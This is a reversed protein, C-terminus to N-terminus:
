IKICQAIMRELVLKQAKGAPLSSSGTKLRHDTDVMLEFIKKLGEDTFNRGQTLYKSVAFSPLRLSGAVQNVTTGKEILLKTEFILKFQRNIMAFIKLPTEGELIIKNLIILASSAEKRGISDVLDFISHERGHAVCNKVDGVTAEAGNCYISLKIIENNLVRLNEGAIEFLYEAAERKINYGNLRAREIIWDIIQTGRPTKYEHFSKNKIAIKVLMNKLDKNEVTLVLVTLDNPKSLYEKLIDADQKKLKEVNNYVVIKKSLNLSVTRATNVVEEAPTKADFEFYDLSQSQCLNRKLRGIAEETLFIQKSYIMYLPKFGAAAL